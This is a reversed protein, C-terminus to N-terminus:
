NKATQAAIISGEARLNAVPKGDKLVLGDPDTLVGFSEFPQPAFFDEDCWKEPDPEYFVDADFVPEWVRNMDAKLGGSVFRGPALIYIRASLPTTGLNSTHLSAVEGGAWEVAQVHDGLLLVGGAHIFEARSDPNGIVGGEAILCVSLGKKLYKLGIAADLQDGGIIIVDYRM